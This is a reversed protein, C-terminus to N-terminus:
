QAPETERRALEERLLRGQRALCYPCGTATGSERYYNHGEYCKAPRAEGMTRARQQATNM